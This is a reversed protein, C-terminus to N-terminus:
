KLRRIKQLHEARFALIKTFFIHKNNIKKCESFCCEPILDKPLINVIRRYTCTALDEPPIRLTYSCVTFFRVKVCTHCCLCFLQVNSSSGLFVTNLHDRHIAVCSLYYYYYAHYHAM